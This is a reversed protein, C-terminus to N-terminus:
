RNVEEAPTFGSAILNRREAVLEPSLLSPLRHFSEVWVRLDAWWRPAGSLMGHACPVLPGVLRFM